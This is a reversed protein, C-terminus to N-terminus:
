SSINAWVTTGAPRVAEIAGLIDQDTIAGEIESMSAYKGRAAAGYGLVPSGYGGVLPIGASVPRFAQVFCQHPMSLSGYAGAAGYGTAAIGYGGCDAPRTPEIIIPERGTMDLLARRLAQRTARERLLNVLIRARFSADSQGPLRVIAPGFFDAAIMDLWGGTATRIRLQQGAHEILALMLAHVSAWGALLADLMPSTDPFWKPLVAKLRALVSLTDTM